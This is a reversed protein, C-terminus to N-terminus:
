FCSRRPFHRGVTSSLAAMGKATIGIGALAIVRPSLLGGDKRPRGTILRWSTVTCWVLVLTGLILFLVATGWSLTDGFLLESIGVVVFGLPVLGAAAVLLGLVVEGSAQAAGRRITQNPEPM